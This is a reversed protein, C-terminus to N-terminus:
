SRSSVITILTLALGLLFLIIGVILWALWNPMLITFWKVVGIALFAVGVISITVGALILGVLRLVHKVFGQVSKGIGAAIGQM